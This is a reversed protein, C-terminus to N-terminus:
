IDWIPLFTRNVMERRKYIWAVEDPITEASASMGEGQIECDWHDPYINISYTSGTGPFLNMVLEGHGNDEVVLGEDGRIKRVNEVFNQADAKTKIEKFQM